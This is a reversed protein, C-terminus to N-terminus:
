LNKQRDTLEKMVKAHGAEAEAWTCWRWCEQSLDTRNTFLMTEYLLPRGHGFSYDIGLFVTSVWVNGIWEQKVIRKEDQGFFECWKMLDPEIVELKGDLVYHKM